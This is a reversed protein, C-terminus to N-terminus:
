LYDIAPVLLFRILYIYAAAMAHLRSSILVRVSNTAVQASLMGRALETIAASFADETAIVEPLGASPVLLPTPVQVEETM